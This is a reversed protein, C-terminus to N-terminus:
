KAKPKSWEEVSPVITTSGEMFYDKAGSEQLAVAAKHVCQSVRDAEPHWRYANRFGLRVKGTTAPDVKWNINMGGIAYLWDQNKYTTQPIAVTGERKGGTMESMIEVHVKKRVGEDDALVAALDVKLTGGEGDLYYDLHTSAHGSRKMTVFRAVELTWRDSTLTCVIEIMARRISGPDTENDGTSGTPKHLTKANTGPDITGGRTPGPTQGSM